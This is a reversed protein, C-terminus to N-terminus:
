PALDTAGALPTAAGADIVPSGPQPRADDGLLPDAYRSNADAGSTHRWADFGNAKKTSWYWIVKAADKGSAYWVNGDFINGSNERFDNTM